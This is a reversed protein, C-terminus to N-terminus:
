VRLQRSIWGENKGGSSALTVEAKALKKIYLLINGLFLV